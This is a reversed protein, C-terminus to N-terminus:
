IGNICIKPLEFNEIGSHLHVPFANVGCDTAVGCNTSSNNIIAEEKAASAFV